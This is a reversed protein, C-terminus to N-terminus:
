KWNQGPRIRLRNLSSRRLGRRASSVAVETAGVAAVDSEVEGQDAQEELSLNQHAAVALVGQVRSHFRM